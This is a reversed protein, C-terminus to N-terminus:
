DDAHHRGSRGAFPRRVVATVATVTATAFAMAGATRRRPGAGRTRTGAEAMAFRQRRSWATLHASVLLLVLVIAISPGWELGGLAMDNSALRKDNSAVDPSPTAYSFEGTGDPSVSPLSYPSSTGSRVGLSPIDTPVNFAGPDSNGITGSSPVYPDSGNKGPGTRAGGSTKRQSPSPKASPRASVSFPTSAYTCSLINGTVEADYGGAASPTFSGSLTTTGLANGGSELTVTGSPGTVKLTVSVVDKVVASVSVTSGVTGHGPGPISASGGIGCSTAANAPAAVVMAGAVTLGAAM